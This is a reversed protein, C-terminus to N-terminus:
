RARVTIATFKDGRPRRPCAGACRADGDAVGPTDLAHNSGLSRAMDVSWGEQTFAVVIMLMPLPSGDNTRTAVFDNARGHGERTPRRLVCHKDNM